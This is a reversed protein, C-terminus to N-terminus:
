ASRLAGNSATEYPQAEGIRQMASWKLVCFLSDRALASDDGYDSPDSSLDSSPGNEPLLM